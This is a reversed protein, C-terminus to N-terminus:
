RGQRFFFTTVMERTLVGSLQLYERGKKKPNLLHPRTPTVNSKLNQFDSSLPKPSIQDRMPAVLHCHGHHGGQVALTKPTNPPCAGNVNGFKAAEVLIKCTFKGLCYKEVVQNSAPATCNGQVLAGCGGFPDGFSAFEVAAIKKQDPCTLKAKPKLDDM